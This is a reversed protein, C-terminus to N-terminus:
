WTTRQVFVTPACGRVTFKQRMQNEILIVSGLLVFGIVYMMVYAVIVIVIIVLVAYWFARTWSM